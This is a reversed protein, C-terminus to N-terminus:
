FDIKDLIDMEKKFLNICIVDNDEPGVRYVRPDELESANINTFIYDNKEILKTNASMGDMTNMVIRGLPQNFNM